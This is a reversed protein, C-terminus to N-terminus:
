VNYEWTSAKKEKGVRNEGRKKGLRIYFKRYLQIALSKMELSLYERGLLDRDCKKGLRIYLKRYLHIVVSKMGM